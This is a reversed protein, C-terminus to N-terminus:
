DGEDPAEVPEVPLYWNHWDKLEPGIVHHFTSDVRTITIIDGKKMNGGSIASSRYAFDELFRYKGPKTITMRNSM